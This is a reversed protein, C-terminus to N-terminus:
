NAGWDENMKKIFKIDPIFSLLEEPEYLAIVKEMDELRIYEKFIVEDNDNLAVVDFASLNPVGLVPSLGLQIFDDDKIGELNELAILYSAAYVYALFEKYKEQNEEWKKIYEAEIIQHEEKFTQYDSMFKTTDM